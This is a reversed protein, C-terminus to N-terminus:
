IQKPAHRGRATERGIEGLRMVAGSKQIEDVEERGTQIENRGNAKVEGSDQETGTNDGVEQASNSLHEVSSV